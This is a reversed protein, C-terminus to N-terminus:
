SATLAFTANVVNVSLSLALRSAILTDTHLHIAPRLIRCFFASRPCREGACMSPSAPARRREGCSDGCVPARASPLMHTGIHDGNSGTSVVPM